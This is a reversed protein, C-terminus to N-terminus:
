YFTLMKKTFNPINTITRAFFIVDSVHFNTCFSAVIVFKRVFRQPWFLFADRSTVILLDLIVKFVDLRLHQTVNEGVIGLLSDSGFSNLGAFIGLLAFGTSIIWMSNNFEDSQGTTATSLLLFLRGYIISFLPWSVGRMVSCLLGFALKAWEPRSYHIIDSLKAKQGGIDDLDEQIRYFESLLKAFKQLNGCYLDM